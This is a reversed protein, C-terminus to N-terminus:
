HFFEAYISAPLLMTDLTFSLPLDLRPFRPPEVKFKKLTIENQNIAAWDLRTGSYIFVSEYLPSDANLATFTACGSLPMVCFLVRM